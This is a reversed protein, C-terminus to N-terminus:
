NFKRCLYYKSFSTRIMNELNLTRYIVDPLFEDFKIEMLHEGDPMVGRMALDPDAFAETRASSRINRDLTIRVNGEAAIFPMRDYEVIIVPQMLRIAKQMLMQNLVKNGQSPVSGSPDTSSPYVLSRSVLEQYQEQSILTKEKSTKDKLKGKIELCMHDMRGDYVRIRYKKRNDTGNEKDWFASNYYDDFYLSRITYSGSPGVHPDRYLISGIRQELEALQLHSCVYKLEYRYQMDNIYRM